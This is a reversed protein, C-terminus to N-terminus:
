NLVEARLQSANAISLDCRPRRHHGGGNTSNGEAIRFRYKAHLPSAVPLQDPSFASYPFFALILLL